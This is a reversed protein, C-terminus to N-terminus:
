CWRVLGSPTTLIFDIMAQTWEAIRFGTGIRSKDNMGALRPAFQPEARLLQQRDNM